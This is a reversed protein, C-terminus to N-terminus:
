FEPFSVHFQTLALFLRGSKLAILDSLLYLSLCIKSVSIDEYLCHNVNGNCSFLLDIM